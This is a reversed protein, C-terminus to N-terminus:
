TEWKINGSPFYRLVITAIQLFPTKRINIFFYVSVFDQSIAIAWSRDLLLHRSSRWPHCWVIYFEVRSPKHLKEMFHKFISRANIRIWPIFPVGCYIKFPDLFIKYRWDYHKKHPISITKGMKLLPYLRFKWM